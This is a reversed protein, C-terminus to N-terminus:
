LDIEVGVVQFNMAALAITGVTYQITDGPSLYFIPAAPQVTKAATQGDPAAAGPAAWLGAGGNSYIYHNTTMAGSDAIAVNNVLVQLTSNNGAQARLQLKVKAAKNAPCTYVTATGLVVATSEGLVGFNDSM